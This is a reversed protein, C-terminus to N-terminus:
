HLADGMDLSMTQRASNTIFHFLPHTLAFYRPLSFCLSFFFPRLFMSLQEHSRPPAPPNQKSQLFNQFLRGGADRSLFRSDWVLELGMYVEGLDLEKRSLFCM